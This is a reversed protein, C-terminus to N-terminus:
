RRMRFMCQQKTAVVTPATYCRRFWGLPVQFGFGLGERYHFEHALDPFEHALDPFLHALDPFQYALDLCVSIRPCSGVTELVRTKPDRGRMEPDQM